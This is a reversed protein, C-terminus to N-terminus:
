VNKGGFLRVYDEKTVPNIKLHKATIVHREYCFTDCMVRVICTLCPCKKMPILCRRMHNCPHCKERKM